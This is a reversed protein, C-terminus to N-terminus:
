VKNGGNEDDGAKREQKVFTGLPLQIAFNLSVLLGAALVYWGGVAAVFLLAGCTQIPLKM